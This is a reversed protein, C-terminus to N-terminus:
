SNEDRTSLSNLHFLISEPSAVRGNKKNQKWEAMKVFSFLKQSKWNAEAPLLAKEFLPRSVNVDWSAQTYLSM